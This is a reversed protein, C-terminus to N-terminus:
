NCCVDHLLDTIEDSTLIISLLGERAFALECAVSAEPPCTPSDCLVHTMSVNSGFTHRQSM